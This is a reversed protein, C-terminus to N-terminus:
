IFAGLNKASINVCFFKSKHVLIAECVVPLRMVDNERASLKVTIGGGEM